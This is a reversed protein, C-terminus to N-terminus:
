KLMPGETYFQTAHRRDVGPCVASDLLILAGQIARQRGEAERKSRRREHAPIAGAELQDTVDIRRPAAAPM